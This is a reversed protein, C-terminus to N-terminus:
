KSSEPAPAVQLTVGVLNCLVSDSLELICIFRKTVSTGSPGEIPTSVVSDWVGYRAPSLAPQGREFFGTARQKESGM